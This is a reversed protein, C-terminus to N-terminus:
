DANVPQRVRQLLAPRLADAVIREDGPQMTHTNIVISNPVASPGNPEFLFIRPDGEEMALVIEHANIGSERTFRLETRPTIHEQGDYVTEATVGPIGDLREVMYESMAQWRALEATHDLRMFAELAVMLGMIDEKAAKAARGVSHNPSGNALAARILDARGALIGSSQPGRLGKGGSFTVLDAGDAILRTLNEAPPLTAAADVLVPVGHRHAIECTQALSLAGKSAWPSVLYVVLATRESM